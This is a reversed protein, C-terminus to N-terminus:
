TLAVEGTKLTGDSYKVRWKLKNASQDLYATIMGNDIDGDTPASNPTGAFVRGAVHFADDTKLVNAASRYLNTDFTSDSPNAFEISANGIGGGNARFAEQGYANLLLLGPKYDSRVQIGAVVAIENRVILQGATLHLTDDTALENAAERYLNADGFTLTGSLNLSALSDIADIGGAEHEVAHLHQHRVTM